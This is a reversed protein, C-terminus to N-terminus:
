VANTEWLQCIRIIVEAAKNMEQVSTWEKKSHIGHEGAFINPCPLGMFSLRSGDTGGRIIGKNLKIGASEIAQSAYDAVQPHSILIEKMNRYQEKQVLTYTSKPYNQMVQDCIKKIVAVHENLKKTDFDRIIFDIRASELQGEIKTPHVFGQRGETSEPCLIEKPLNAIIEGAIKIANEMTNKAYGPHTSVGTIHISCADASFTEDEMSGINGSDMTYAYQADLKKLDVHDVGHGIEEDTTFLVCIRGHKIQPNNKLFIIAEMISTVGSKDDSGLLTLGSATIIDEGIKSLLEPFEKPSIIINPDDPLILDQGLYHHHLIPKVDTGSCDPATDMHACFCIHPVTKSSNSELHAYVYGFQDIESSIGANQLEQHLLHGLEKQKMTSPSSLSFPDAQTDIKAYRIFRDATTQSSFTM